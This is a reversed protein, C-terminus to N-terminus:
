SRDGQTPMSSHETPAARAAASIVPRGAIRHNSTDVDTLGVARLLGDLTEADVAAFGHHEDGHDGGFRRHDPHSPDAFDEDVLLIRGNPRLVRAIEAVGREIEVWHHMSNVAWIADITRDDVPIREAAGDAVEIGSRHPSAMRRMRLMARMFPTPEVAIVQCGTMAARIVGAGMGAGVDVVREGPQPDVLDVVADNIASRWMRPLRRLYRLAGRFGRDNDHGHHGHGRHEDEHHDADDHGTEASM